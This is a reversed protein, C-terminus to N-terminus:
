PPSFGPLSGVFLDTFSGGGLPISQVRPPTDSFNPNGSDAVYVIGHDVAVSNFHEENFGGGYRNPGLQTIGSVPNGATMGHVRGQVEDATVLTGPSGSGPVFAIGSGDVVPQGTAFGSCVKDGPGGAIRVRFVATAEAAAARGGG